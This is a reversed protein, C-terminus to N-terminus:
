QGNTRDKIYGREGEVYFARGSGGQSYRYCRRQRHSYIAGHGDREPRETFLTIVHPVFDAIRRSRRTKEERLREEGECCASVIHWVLPSLQTEGDAEEECSDFYSPHKM